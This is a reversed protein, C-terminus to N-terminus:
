PHTAGLRPAGYIAYPALYPPLAPHHALPFPPAPLASPPLLPPKPYPHYRAAAAPPPGLPSLPPTPYTRHLLSESTHTRLHALLEESTPYRKGCYSADPGIWSCVYPQPSSAAALAALHCGACYPDRCPEKMLQSPVQKPSSRPSAEGKRKPQPKEELGEYPKFSTKPSSSTSSVSSNGPSSKESPPSDAGIQSCTQALLALPSKKADLQFLCCIM